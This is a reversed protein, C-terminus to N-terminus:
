FSSLRSADVDIIQANRPGVVAGVSQGRGFRGNRRHLLRQVYLECPHRLHLRLDIEQGRLVPVVHSCFMGFSIRRLASRVGTIENWRASTCFVRVSMKVAHRSSRARAACALSSARRATWRASSIRVADRLCRRITVRAAAAGIIPLHTPEGGDQYDDQERGQVRDVADTARVAACVLLALRRGRACRRGLAGAHQTDTAEAIGERFVQRRTNGEDRKECSNRHRTWVVDCRFRRVM